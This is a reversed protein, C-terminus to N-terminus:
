ATSVMLDADTHYRLDGRVSNCWRHATRLNSDADSGGQSRPIIHDLSPYWDGHQADANHDVPEGCIQCTHSDREYIRLRRRGSIAWHRPARGEVPGFILVARCEHSCASVIGKSHKGQTFTMNCVPCTSIHIRSKPWEGTLLGQICTPSCGQIRRPRKALFLEGCAECREWKAYCTDHREFVACEPSCTTREYGKVAEFEAGCAVCERTERMAARVYGRQKDANVEQWRQKQAYHAAMRKPDAARALTAAKIACPKSCYCKQKDSLPDGCVVCTQTTSQEM